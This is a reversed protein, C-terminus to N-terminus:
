AGAESELQSILMCYVAYQQQATPYPRVLIRTTRYQARTLRGLRMEPPTPLPTQIPFMPNQQAVSVTGGVQQWGHADTKLWVLEKSDSKFLGICIWSRLWFAFNNSGELVAVPSLDGSPSPRTGLHVDGRTALRPSARTTTGPLSKIGVWGQYAQVLALARLDIDIDIRRLVRGGFWFGRDNCLVLM